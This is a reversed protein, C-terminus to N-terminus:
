ESFVRKFEDTDRKGFIVFHVEQVSEVDEEVFDDLARHMARACDALSLGGVGTGIAPFAVSSLGLEEALAFLASDIDEWGRRSFEREGDAGAICWGWRNDNRRRFLTVTQGDWLRWHNGKASRKWASSERFEELEAVADEVTRPEPIVPM